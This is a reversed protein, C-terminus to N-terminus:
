AGAAHVSEDYRTEFLRADCAVCTAAIVDHSRCCSEVVDTGLDVSGECTPCRDAFLRLGALLESRYAVPMTEWQELRNSLVGVAAADAVFAARSEWQGLWEDDYWAALRDPREDLRIPEADLGTLAALARRQTGDDTLTAMEGYWDARFGEDLELDDPGQVVAGSELLLEEVRFSEPVFGASGTDFLALLRDPFYRKTLEPTRPVLYGRLYISAGSAFAVGAALWPSVLLAVVTLVGALVVNTVTCPICRNTGTYEPRRLRGIISGLRRTPAREGQLTTRGM